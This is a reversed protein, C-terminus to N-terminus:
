RKKSSARGQAQKGSGAGAVAAVPANARPYSALATGIITLVFGFWVWSILPNIKVQMSLQEGQINQFVVFVDQLPEVIVSAELKTQQQRFFSIQGPNVEGVDRGNKSVAFNLRTEVDGNPLQDDNIGNFTFEYDGAVFTAGPENDVFTLTEDVFMASGVLGILIIGIGLHTLYGGSQTRAKVMISGLSALFSEGKSASRRRAGEVFLFVSIAAAFVGVVIGAVAYFNHVISSLGTEGTKQYIPLLHTYWLALL